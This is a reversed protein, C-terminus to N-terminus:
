RAIIVKRLGAEGTERVFYVAAEPQSVRRGTVDYVASSALHQIGAAGSLVAPGPRAGGAVGRPRDSGAGPESGEEIGIRYREVHDGPILTRGAFAPFTPAYRVARFVQNSFVPISEYQFMPGTDCVPNIYEWVWTGDHTVEFFHGTTGLDILTNGNPLRQAGSIVTAYFESTDGYSWAPADPGYTTDARLTYFGLSDVPPVVEDITSWPRAPGGNNFLLINGAGNLSDGIWHPNHQFYLKRRGTGGHGYAAPNGWRYLLDGGRGYRGGSHGAAEAATTSHDIVWVESFEHVSIILQDLEPNWDVANCHLWDAAGNNAIYYNVSVLEPHEAVVGYNSKTTDYDQILHDWVHWEWVISDTLPDVEVLHDPWLANGSMRSPNRGAALAEARTKYEWAVMVVHGNALPLADHHQCHLTTSYDYAWALSGDWDYREVRGGNGGSTFRSNHVCAARVLDGNEALYATHGASYPSQWSNVQRGENDILYTRTYSSPAFLTYGTFAASDNLLVGMTRDQGRAPLWCGFLVSLLIITKNM